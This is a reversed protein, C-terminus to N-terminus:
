QNRFSNGSKNNEISVYWFQGLINEMRFQTLEINLILM